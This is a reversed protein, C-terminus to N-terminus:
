VTELSRLANQELYRLANWAYVASGTALVSEDFAAGPHHLPYTYGKEPEGAALALMVAPIKQSVYAFDESGGNRSNKGQSLMQTTFVKKAGLLETTFTAANESIEKDNILTPCGSDFTVKATARFAMAIGEAIECLRKQIRLRLEEEFSRLTGKMVATDAIVNAATGAQMSGITLVAEDGSGMERAPIEQLAILIQAAAQLADIGQQPTSGHCGKGQVRITFFDAAPASVGPSSVVVTGAPFPVGTMVHIMLAGQLGPMELVGADIMDKAGELTEEGPQFMLRVKGKIEQEHSKLLRAAGLLMATHMDHGCAHMNGNQCAFAVEAEEQVPLADMDARILFADGEGSGVDAYVGSKGCDKPEYGMDRLQTKVYELTQELAFGTEAHAHLWRRHAIIEQEYQKAEQLFDGSM